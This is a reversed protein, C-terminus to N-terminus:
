AELQQYSRLWARTNKLAEISRDYDEKTIEGSRVGRMLEFIVNQMYTGELHVPRAEPNDKFSETIDYEIDENM